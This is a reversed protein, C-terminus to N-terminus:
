PAPRDNTGVGKRRRLLPQEVGATARLSQLWAAFCAQFAAPKLLMLVRRFVDKGPIGNPLDLVERLFVAKLAAWEHIAIPGDAGALVAMLAIVVVGVSPHRRNVTSRPDELGEFHRAVVDLGVRPVDAM